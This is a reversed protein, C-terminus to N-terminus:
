QLSLVIVSSAEPISYPSGSVEKIETSTAEYVHLKTTSLAYLHNDKDWAFQLFNESSHLVGTFKKIPSGGDFHFVQLGGGTSVALLKGSPSISMPNAGYNGAVTPMNEMTSKTTLNAKSDATYSALLLPGVSFGEDVNRAQLTFALHDSSDTALSYPCYVEGSKAKPLEMSILPLGVLLGNSERKYAGTEQETVVDDDCGTQYAFKNNGLVSIEGPETPTGEFDGSQGNGIFQLDGNSEIKFAEQWLDGSNDTQNYLTTGTADLKQPGFCCDSEGGHSYNQADVSSVEKVAGNSAISYTIIHAHDDSAGFLYKKTVSLHYLSINSFPSGPVATLKGSSSAAFGDLHTPRTVYVYAVPSSSSAATSESTQATSTQALATGISITAILCFSLQVSNKM